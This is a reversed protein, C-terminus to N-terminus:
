ETCTGQWTGLISLCVKGSQYLNPNFRVRGGGTTLLKVSPPSVPFDHPCFLLFHFFGGEYPTDFPGTILAHVCDMQGEDPSVVVGPLPHKILDRLDRHIRRIAEPTHALGASVQQTNTSPLCFPM